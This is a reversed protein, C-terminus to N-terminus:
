EAPPVVGEIGEDEAKMEGPTLMHLTQPDALDIFLVGNLHDNEHQIVRAEFDTARFRVPPPASNLIARGQSSRDGGTVSSSIGALTARQHFPLGM